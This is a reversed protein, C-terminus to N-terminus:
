RAPELHLDQEIRFNLVTEAPVRVENGKTMIQGAAEAAAGVGAVMVRGNGGGAIAGNLAGQAWGRGVIKRAEGNARIGQRDNEEVDGTVVLYRMGAVTVAELDLVLESATRIGGGKAKQLVLEADSGNPIAM